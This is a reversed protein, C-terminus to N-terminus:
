KHKIDENKIAPQYVELKFLEKLKKLLPNETEFSKSFDYV